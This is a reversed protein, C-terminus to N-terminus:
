GCREFYPGDWDAGGCYGFAAVFWGGQDDSGYREVYFGALALDNAFISLLARM